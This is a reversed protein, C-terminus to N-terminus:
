DESMRLERRFFCVFVKTSETVMKNRENLNRLHIKQFIFQPSENSGNEQWKLKVWQKKGDLEWGKTQRGERSHSKMRMWKEEEARPEKAALLSPKNRQLRVRM